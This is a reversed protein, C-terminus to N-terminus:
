MVFSDLCYDHRRDMRRERDTGRESVTEAVGGGERGLDAGETWSEFVDSSRSQCCM